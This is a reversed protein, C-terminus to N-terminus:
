VLFDPCTSALKGAAQAGLIALDKQVFGASDPLGPAPEVPSSTAGLITKITEPSLVDPGGAAQEMLAVVGAVHAVAASTGIFPNFQSGEPFATTVNDPGIIDPKARVIPEPLRNGEEDFLIPIGGRSAFSDYATGDDSGSGVTIAKEANAQAYVTPTGLLPDIYEYKIDRDLGNATSVWRLKLKNDLPEELNRVVAYYLDEDEESSYTLSSLAESAGEQSFPVSFAVVNPESPLEPSNLLLLSLQNPVDGNESYSSFLPRLFTGDESPEIKQFSDISSGPDFDHTEFDLGNSSFVEGRRFESEYAISGNNGAASLYIIGSDVADNVAQSTIGEGTLSDLSITDDFIIDVDAEKLAKVASSFSTSNAFPVEGSSDVVSHFLLESGPAIEHVIQALARGEDTALISGKPPDNLITVPVERGFPNQEGPLEGNEVDIRLGGLANFSDSVIGIKVGSGDSKDLANDINLGIV